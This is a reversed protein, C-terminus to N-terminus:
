ETPIVQYAEKSYWGPQEGRKWTPDLDTNAWRYSLYDRYSDFVTARDTFDVGLSSNRASNQYSTPLGKVRSIFPASAERLPGLLVNLSAHRQRPDLEMLEAVSELGHWFVGLWLCHSTLWVFNRPDKGAWLSCPHHHHTRRYAGPPNDVANSLLQVSERIQSNKRRDDLWLASERPSASTVFINM